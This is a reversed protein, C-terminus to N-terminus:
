WNKIVLESSTKPANGTGNSLSYKIQLADISLDKFIERMAPHDNISLMFKGKASKMAEALEQYQELGFDVGYGEVQWYPPDAYFFTHPRDYRKFCDQWSLHEVTVGALRLHAESLKEEIRCM